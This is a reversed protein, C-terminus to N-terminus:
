LFQVDRREASSSVRKAVDRWRWHNLQASLALSSGRAVCLAGRILACLGRAALLIDVALLEKLGMKCNLKGYASEM